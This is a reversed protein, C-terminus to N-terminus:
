GLVVPRRLGQMIETHTRRSTQVRSDTGKFEYALAAETLLSRFHQGYHDALDDISLNTTIITPLSNALRHRLVSEIAFESTATNFDKMGVGSVARRQKMERGVDDVILLPASRVKLHFWRKDETSNWSSMLSSLLEPFTTFYAAVGDALFAKAILSSLMTKGTGRTGWLLMGLGANVAEFGISIYERSVKVAGAEIGDGDLWSLRQYNLGVGSSLLFRHLEWQDECPCDYTVIETRSDPAFWRFERSPRKDAESWCILCRDPTPWRTTQESSLRDSEANTLSRVAPPLDPLVQNM